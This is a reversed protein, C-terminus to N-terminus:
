GAENYFLRLRRSRFYGILVLSFLVGVLTVVLPGWVLFVQAQDVFIAQPLPDRGAKIADEQFAKALAPVIGPVVPRVVKALFIAQVLCVLIGVRGCLEGLRRGRRDRSFLAAVTFLYLLALAFRTAAHVLVAGKHGSQLTNSLVVQSRAVGDTIADRSGDVVLIQPKGTALGHLDSVSTFFVNGGVLLLLLTLPPLLRPRPIGGSGPAFHSATEDDRGSHM